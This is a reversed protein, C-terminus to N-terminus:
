AGGLERWAARVQSEGVPEGGAFMHALRLAKGVSRLAGPQLGIKRLQPRAGAAIGWADLFAELDGKTPRGLRVRKGIRSFLQAFEAARRGGTIRAYVLENGLIALGVGTADHIGRLAELARTDLHQAEDVVLLGETDTLRAVIDAETRAAGTFRPRLGLAHATRELCPCVGRCTATMTAVWANARTAAYHRATLTKGAGADGYIVALDGAAQAYALAALVRRSSPTEVWGPAEPMGDRWKSREALSDLWRLIRAELGREDAGYKGAFWTSLASDSIGIAQAAKAQSLGARAMASRARDRLTPASM